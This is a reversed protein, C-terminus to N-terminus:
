LVGEAAYKEMLEDTALPSGKSGKNGPLQWTVRQRNWHFGLDKMRARTETPPQDPFAAWVWTGVYFVRAGMNHAVIGKQIAEHSPTPKTTSM